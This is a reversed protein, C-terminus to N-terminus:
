AAFCSMVRAIENNYKLTLGDDRKLALQQYYHQQLCDHSSVVACSKIMSRRLLMNAYKFRERERELICKINTFLFNYLQQTTSLASATIM